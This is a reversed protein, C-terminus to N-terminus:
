VVGMRKSRWLGQWREWGGRGQHLHTSEHEHDVEGLPVMAEEVDEVETGAELTKWYDDWLWQTAMQAAARLNTLSPVEGHTAEHRLDVFLAPLGIQQAIAYMSLKYKTDQEADLIGTVFRRSTLRPSVAFITIPPSGLYRRSIVLKSQFYVLRRRRM